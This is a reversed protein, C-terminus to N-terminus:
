AAGARLNQTHCGRDADTLEPLPAVPVDGIEVHRRQEFLRALETYLPTLEQPYDGPLMVGGWVGHTAGTAVANYSCRGRFPCEACQQIARRRRRADFFLEPDQRCAVDRSTQFLRVDARMQFSAFPRAVRHRSDSSPDPAITM